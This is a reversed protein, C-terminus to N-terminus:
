RLDAPDVQVRLTGPERHASRVGLSASLAATLAPGHRLPCRLLVRVEDDTGTPVPGLRTTGPVDVRAVFSTVAPRTGTLTAVRVVPPLGLETREALDLSALWAPDWRVLAQTPRPPGDGVLVVEGGARVLGAAGMWRRLTETEDRFATGVQADLLVAAAFGDAAV